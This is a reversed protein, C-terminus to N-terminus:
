LTRRVDFMFHIRPIAGENTVGHELLTNVLYAYGPRLNHPEGGVHFVPEDGALLPVHVRALWADPQRDIHSPIADGPMVVSLMRQYAACGPFHRMLEGVIGDTRAGFGHWAPDTMMSPRLQHPQTRGQQHWDSFPIAGIWAALDGVDIPTLMNVTGAFRQVPHM